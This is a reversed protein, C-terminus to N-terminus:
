LLRLAGSNSSSSRRNNESFRRRLQSQLNGTGVLSGQANSGWRRIAAKSDWGRARGLSVQLDERLSALVYAAAVRSGM